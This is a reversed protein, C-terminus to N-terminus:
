LSDKVTNLNEHAKGYFAPSLEIAKEFSQEAEKNKGNLMYLFGINNQATAESGAKKFAERAMSYEGLKALTFALNNYVKSGNEGKTIATTFAHKAKDFEGNMYYSVGLNNYVAGADPKIAIAKQYQEVALSFKKERDYTIGLLNHSEWLRDNLDLATTFYQIAKENESDLFYARGMGEQALANKPDKKLIKEFEGRAEDTMSKLLFLRGTKYQASSREPEMQLAKTYNVFATTLDGKKLNIDGLREFEEATAVTEDVKKGDPTILKRESRNGINGSKSPAGVNTTACGSLLIVTALCILLAIRETKNIRVM